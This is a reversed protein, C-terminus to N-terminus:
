LCLTYPCGNRRRWKKYLSCEGVAKTQLPQTECPRLLYISSLPTSEGSPTTFLLYSSTAPSSSSSPEPPIVIIILVTQSKLSMPFRLARIQRDEVNIRSIGDRGKRKRYQEADTSGRGEHRSRKSLVRVLPLYLIGAFMFNGRFLKYLSGRVVLQYQM